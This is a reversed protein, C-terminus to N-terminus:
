GEAATVTPLEQGGLIEAKPVPLVCPGPAPPVSREASIDNFLLGCCTASGAALGM